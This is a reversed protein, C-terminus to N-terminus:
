SQPEMKHKIAEPARAHKRTGTKNAGNGYAICNSYNRNM